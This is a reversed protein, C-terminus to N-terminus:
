RSERDSLPPDLNQPESMVREGTPLEAWVRMRPSLDVDDDLMDYLADWSAADHPPITQEGAQPLPVLNARARARTQTGVSIIRVPFESRNAVRIRLVPRYHTTRYQGTEEDFDDLYPETDTEAWIDILLRRSHWWTWAQWLVSATAVIAAYLAIAEM